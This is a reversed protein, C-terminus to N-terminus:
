AFKIVCTTYSANSQGFLVTYKTNTPTLIAYRKFAEFAKCDSIEITLVPIDLTVAGPIRECSFAGDSCLAYTFLEWQRPSYEQPIDYLWNVTLGGIASVSLKDIKQLASMSKKTRGTQVSLYKFSKRTPM